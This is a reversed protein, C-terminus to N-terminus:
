FPVAEGAATITASGLKGGLEMFKSLAAENRALSMLAMGEFAALMIMGYHRRAKDRQSEEVKDFNMTFIDAWSIVRLEGPALFGGVYQSVPSWTLADVIDSQTEKNALTDVIATLPPKIGLSAAGACLLGGAAVIPDIQNFIKDILDAGTEKSRAM